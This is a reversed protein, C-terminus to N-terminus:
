GVAPNFADERDRGDRAPRCLPQRKYVDLHTYSVARINDRGFNLAYEDMASRTFAELKQFVEKREQPTLEKFDDVKRGILHM